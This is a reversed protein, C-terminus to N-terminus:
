VHDDERPKEVSIEFELEPMTGAHKETLEEKKRMIARSFRQNTEEVKRKLIDASLDRPRLCVILEEVMLAGDVYRMGLNEMITPTLENKKDMEKVHARTVPEWGEFRLGKRALDWETFFGFSFEPCIKSLMNQIHMITNAPVGAVAADSLARWRDPNLLERAKGIEDKSLKERPM